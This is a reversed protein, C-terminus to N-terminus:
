NTPLTLHTYSVTGTSATLPERLQTATTLGESGAESWTAATIAAVLVFMASPVAYSSRLTSLRVLDARLMTIM